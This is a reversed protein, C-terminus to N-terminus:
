FGILRTRNTLFAAFRAKEGPDDYSHGADESLNRASDTGTLAIDQIAKLANALIETHLYADPTQMFVLAMKAIAKISGFADQAVADIDRITMGLTDKAQEAKNIIREAEFDPGQPLTAAPQEKTTVNTM